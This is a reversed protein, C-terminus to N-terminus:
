QILLGKFLETTGMDDRNYFTINDCVVDFTYKIPESSSYTLSISPTKLIKMGTAYVVYRPVPTKSSYLDYLVIVSSMNKGAVGRRFCGLEDNYYYGRVCKYIANLFTLKNNDIITYSINVPRRIKEFLNKVSAESFSYDLNYGDITVSELIINFDFDSFEIEAIGFDFSAFFLNSFAPKNTYLLKQVAKIVQTTIDLKGSSQKDKEEKKAEAEAEAEALTEKTIKVDEAITEDKETVEKPETITKLSKNTSFQIVDCFFEFTMTMPKTESRSFSLQPSSGFHVNKCTIEFSVQETQIEKFPLYMNSYPNIIKFVFSGLNHSTDGVRFVSTTKKFINKVITGTFTDFLKLRNDDTVTMTVKTPREVGTFANRAYAPIYDYKFSWGAIEVSVLVYQLKELFEVETSYLGHKEQKRSDLTANKIYVFNWLNNLAPTFGLLDTVKNKYLTNISDLTTLTTQAM